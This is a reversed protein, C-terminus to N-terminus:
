LQFIVPLHRNGNAVVVVAAATVVFVTMLMSHARRRSTVDGADRRRRAHLADHAPVLTRPLVVSLQRAFSALTEELSRHTTVQRVRAACSSVAGNVLVMAVLALVAAELFTESDAHFAFTREETIMETYVTNLIVWEHM